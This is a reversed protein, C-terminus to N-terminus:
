GAATTPLVVARLYSGSKITTNTAESGNQTFQFTLPGAATSSYIGRVPMLLVETGATTGGHNQATAWTNFSFNAQTTGGTNSSSPGSTAWGGTVSGTTSWSVKCDGTAGAAFIVAGTIEYVADAELLLQLYSSDTITTSSIISQDATARAFERPTQRSVIYPNANGKVKVTVAGTGSPVDLFRVLGPPVSIVGRTDTTTPDSPTTGVECIALLNVTGNNTVVLRGSSRAQTVVVTDATTSSLTASKYQGVTYSAM